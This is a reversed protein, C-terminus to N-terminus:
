QKLALEIEKRLEDAKRSPETNLLKGNKDILYTTPYELVNYAKIISHERYTNETFAHYGQIKYKRLAKNWTEKDDISVILFVVNTDSKFYEKVPKIVNFLKHCPGCAAFWFDLYVVKGKFSALNIKEGKENELSFAPAAMGNKLSRADVLKQALLRKYASDKIHPFSQDITLEIASDKNQRIDREIMLYFVPPKLGSPLAEALRSYKEKIDNGVAPKINDDYYASLISAVNSVYLYSYFLDNDLNLLTKIAKISSPTLKAQHKKLINDYSDGFISIAGNYKTRLVNAKIYAYLLNFSENSMSTKFSKLQRDLSNQLSDIKNFLYDIPFDTGKIKESEDSFALRIQNIADSLIFKEKGRGSYSLTTKLGTADYNIEISDGPQIFGGYYNSGEEFSLFKTETILLEQSFRGQAVPITVAVIKESVRNPIINCKISNANLNKIYGSVRAKQGYSIISFLLALVLLITHKKM